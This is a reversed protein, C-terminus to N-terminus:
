LVSKKINNDGDEEGFKGDRLFEMRLKLPIRKLLMSNFKKIDKGSNLNAMWLRFSELGLDGHDRILYKGQQLLVKSNRYFASNIENKEKTNNSNEIIHGKEKSELLRKDIDIKNNNNLRGEDLSNRKNICDITPTQEVEEANGRYHDGCYGYELYAHNNGEIYDENSDEEYNHEKNGELM